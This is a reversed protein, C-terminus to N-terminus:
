NEKKRSSQRISKIGVNWACIKLGLTSSVIGVSFAVLSVFLSISVCGCAVSVFVLVHEFYQVINSM